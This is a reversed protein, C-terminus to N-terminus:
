FVFPSEVSLKKFAKLQATTSKTTLSKPLFFFLPKLTLRKEEKQKCNIYSTIMLRGALTSMLLELTHLVQFLRILVRLRILLLVM